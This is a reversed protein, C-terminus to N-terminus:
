KLLEAVKGYYVALAERDCGVLGQELLTDMVNHAHSDISTCRGRADRYDKSNLNDVAFIANANAIEAIQKVIMERTRMENEGLHQTEVHEDESITCHM